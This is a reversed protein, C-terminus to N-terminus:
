AAFALRRAFERRLLALSLGLQVVVSGLSLYWVWSLRFGPMRALVFIPIAVLLIRAGSTFLSPITNGMAQFMSSNVFIVGSAPFTWAVIRLYEVGMSVVAPVDTFAGILQAPFLSCVIAFLVMVGGAMYVADKFTDKVREAM